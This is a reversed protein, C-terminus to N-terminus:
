NETLFEKWLFLCSQILKEVEFEMFGERSSELRLLYKNLFSCVCFIQELIMEFSKKGNKEFVLSAKKRTRM